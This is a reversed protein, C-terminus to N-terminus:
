STHVPVPEADQATTEGLQAMGPSPQASTPRANLLVNVAFALLGAVAVFQSGALVPVAGPYGLLLAALSGMMPPLALNYLWFHLGALRSAGAVPFVRYILGALALTTWGLLSVHSHVSRLAFDGSAGMATGLGAGVLLYVVALRFWSVSSPTYLVPKAADCRAPRRAAIQIAATM